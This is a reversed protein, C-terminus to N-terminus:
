AALRRIGYLVTTHHVGFLAAIQTLLYGQERLRAYVRYRAAMGPRVGASRGSVTIKPGSM